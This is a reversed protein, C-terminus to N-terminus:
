AIGYELFVLILTVLLIAAMALWSAPRAHNITWGIGFRKPIVISPDDPNFYFTGLIWHEDDDRGLEDNTRLEAALRGGSQGFRVSAILMAVVFAITIAMMAVAAAGHSVIGLASLYFLLGISASILLGGVLLLQSQVRAFRGYALASTVPAAPDIPRKSKITFWHCITFILGMYGTVIAPFLVSGVSKPVFSTVEGSFDSSMPIQELFRDYMALAFIIMALTLPVYLLNWALSIPQPIDEGIITVAQQGHARWGEAQKISRVRARYYLMLGTGVVIPALTAVTIAISAAMTAQETAPGNGLLRQLAIGLSITCAISVFATVLTYTKQFGAIRPDHQASPPITVTFYETPPMLWPTAAVITGVLLVLVNMLLLSLTM